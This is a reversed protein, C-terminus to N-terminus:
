DMGKCHESTISSFAQQIVIAPDPLSQLLEDHTRLYYKVYSFAEEMPNLDPSYPPLFLLLIGAQQLLDTIEQVHHVSLNDMVAISAM